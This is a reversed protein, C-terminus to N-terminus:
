LEEIIPTEARQVIISGLLKGHQYSSRLLNIVPALSTEDMMAVEDFLAITRKTDTMGLKTTLYSSQSQGTSLYEFSIEKGSTTTIIQNVIDVNRVQYEGDVHLVTHMNKAYYRGIIESYQEDLATEIRQNEIRNLSSPLFSRFLSEVPVLRRSILKLHSLYVRDPEVDQSELEEVRRSQSQLLLTVQNLQHELNSITRKM